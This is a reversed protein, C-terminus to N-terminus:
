HYIVVYFTVYTLFMSYSYSIITYLIIYSATEAPRGQRGGGGCGPGARQLNAAAGSTYTYTHVTHIYIYIYIYVYIYVCVYM